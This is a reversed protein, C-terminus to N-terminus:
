ASVVVGNSTGKYLSGLSDEVVDYTGDSLKVSIVDAAQAAENITIDYQGTAANYVVTDITIAGFTATNNLIVWNSPSDLDLISNDKNCSSVVSVNLETSTNAIAGLTISTEIAGKVDALDGVKTFPLFVHRANFEVADLLQFKVTTM